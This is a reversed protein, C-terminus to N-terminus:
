GEYHAWEEAFSRVLAQNDLRNVPTPRRAMDPPFDFLLPESVANLFRLGGPLHAPAALLAPDASALTYGWEGFSPVYAHYGRTALGAAELTSAVTWFSRPAVMPSTSQVVAVAGPAMLRAVEAYFSQTYLKGLSYETPDPFDIIVADFAHSPAARVWRFADANTLRLRPNALSHANLASLGPADRFLRTMEPDLDVLQVSQVRPDRLIERAALGVGGGHGGAPRVM